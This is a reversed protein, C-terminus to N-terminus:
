KPLTCIRRITIGIDLAQRKYVDVVVEKEGLTYLGDGLCSASMSDTILICKDEGKCRIILKLIDKNVHILDPIFEM